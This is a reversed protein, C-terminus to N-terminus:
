SHNKASCLGKSRVTKTSRASYLSLSLYLNVSVSTLHMRTSTTQERTGPTRFLREAISSVPRSHPLFSARRSGTKTRTPAPALLSYNTLPAAGPDLMRRRSDHHLRDIPGTPQQRSRKPVADRAVGSAAGLLLRVRPQDRAVLTALGGEDGGHAAERLVELPTSHVSTLEAVIGPEAGFELSPFDYTSHSHPLSFSLSPYLSSSFAVYM